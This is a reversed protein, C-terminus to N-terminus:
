SKKFEPIVYKGMLEISTMVDEHAMKYPNFLCFLLDCGVARGRTMWQYLHHHTNALGATIIDGGVDVVVDGPQPEVTGTEAIVGDAIAIDGPWRAGRFVTRSSM